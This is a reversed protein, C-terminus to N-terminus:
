PTFAYHGKGFEYHSLNPLLDQSCLKTIIEFMQLNSAKM